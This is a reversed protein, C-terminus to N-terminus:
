AHTAVGRWRAPRQRPATCPLRRMRGNSLPRHGNRLPRRSADGTMGRMAAWIPAACPRTTRCTARGRGRRRHPREGPSLRPQRHRPEASANQEVLLVGVGLEKIRGLAQFLEKCVLPSLGLSPEDLLLIDPNSMLARGIAVMQREGGSM